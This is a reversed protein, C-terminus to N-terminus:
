RGLAALAKAASGTIEELDKQLAALDFGSPAKQKVNFWDPSLIAWAEDCYADLFGWTMRLLKLTLGVFQRM